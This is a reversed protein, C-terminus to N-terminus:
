GRKIKRDLNRNNWDMMKENKQGNRQGCKHRKRDM